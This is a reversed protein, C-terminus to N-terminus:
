KAGEFSAWKGSRIRRCAPCYWEKKGRPRWGLRWAEDRLEGKAWRVPREREKPDADAELRSDCTECGLIVIARFGM